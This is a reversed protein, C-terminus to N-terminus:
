RRLQLAHCVNLCTVQPNRTLKVVEDVVLHDWAAADRTGCEAACLVACLRRKSM